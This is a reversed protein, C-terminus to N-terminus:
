GKIPALRLRRGESIRRKARLYDGHGETLFNGSEFQFSFPAHHTSAAKRGMNPPAGHIVAGEGHPALYLGPEGPV